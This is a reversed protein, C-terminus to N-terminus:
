LVPLRSRVRHVFDAERVLDRWVLRSGNRLRLVVRPEWPSLLFLVPFLIGSLFTVLAILCGLAAIAALSLVDMLGIGHIGEALARVAGLLARTVAQDPVFRAGRLEVGEIESWPVLRGGSLVLGRPPDVTVRVLLMRVFQAAFALPGLVLLATAIEPCPERDPAHRRLLWAAVSAAVAWGLFRWTTAGTRFTEPESASLLPREATPASLGEAKTWGCYLCSTRDEHIGRGCGECTVGM